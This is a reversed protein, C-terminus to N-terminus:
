KFPNRAKQGKKKQVVRPVGAARTGKLRSAAESNRQQERRNREAEAERLGYNPNTRESMPRVGLDGLDHGIYANGKVKRKANTSGKARKGSWGM